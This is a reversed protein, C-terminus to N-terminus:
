GGARRRGGSRARRTRVPRPALPVRGDLPHVRDGGAAPLPEDGHDRPGQVHRARVRGRQLRRLDPRDHGEPHLEGEPRHSVDIRFVEGHPTEQTITRNIAEALRVFYEKNTIVSSRENGGATEGDRTYLFLLDIDSSYDLEAGGLKGFSVISFGSRVIRGQADRYQPQGYRKELEQDCFALAQKLIVDALTSLELMTEGLTSLRLVDKLGVRLHNRRKFRALQSSLWLDPSTVSYRAYDQMLDEGSKLRTFHRDRAFQVAMSHEALLLDGLSDCYGFIAVLYTLASPFHTLDELVEPPAGKAYRELLKLVGDPDPSQALLSALSPSLGPALRQELRVLNDEAQVRDAFPV